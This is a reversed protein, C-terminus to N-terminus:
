RDPPTNVDPSIIELRPFYSSFRGQDRTLLKLGAVAAHAGIFLDSLPLSRKGGLQRYRIFAKGALFLAEKPLSLMTVGCGSLARELDEIEEFGISVESYVIPNIYLPGRAAWTELATQSWQAWEFDNTFVDLLVNTDALVGSLGLASL